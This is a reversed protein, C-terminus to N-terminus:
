GALDRGAIALLERRYAARLATVADPGTVQARTGGTGTVPDAADAGVAAALRAPVGRTDHGGLLVQWDDPNARLHAALELSVGLVALLRIRLQPESEMATRLAAGNPAAVLEALTALAADPDASRGLAAVVVGAADGNPENREASWWSLPEATLLDAARVGDRFSLRSMRGAVRSVGESMRHACPRTRCRPAHRMPRRPLHPASRRRIPSRRRPRPRSPARRRSRPRTACSTSSRTRSRGGCRSSTPM